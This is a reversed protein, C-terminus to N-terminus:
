TPMGRVGYSTANPQSLSPQPWWITPRRSRRLRNTLGKSTLSTRTPPAKPSSPKMRKMQSSSPHTAYQSVDELCEFSNKIETKTGGPATKATCTKQAKHFELFEAQLTELADDAFKGSGGLTEVLQSYDTPSDDIRYCSLENCKARAAKREGKLKNYEDTLISFRVINQFTEREILAAM